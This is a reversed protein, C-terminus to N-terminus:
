IVNFIVQLRELGWIDNQTAALADVDDLVIHVVKDTIRQFRPQGKMRDWLLPKRLNQTCLYSWFSTVALYM